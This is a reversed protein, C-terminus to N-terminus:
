LTTYLINYITQDRTKNLVIANQSTRTTIKNLILYESIELGGTILRRPVGQVRDHVGDVGSPWWITTATKTVDDGQRTQSTVVNM